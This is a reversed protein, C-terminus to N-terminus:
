RDQALVSGMWELYRRSGEIVPVAIIEPTDYPHLAVIQGEITQYRDRTSKVILIWEESREIAGDWWYASSVPGAIQVCAALHDVLLSQAIAEAVERSGVTTIIQLARGPHNSDNRSM